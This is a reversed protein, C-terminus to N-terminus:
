VGPRAQGQRLRTWAQSKAAADRRLARFHGECTQTSANRARARAFSESVGDIAPDHGRQFGVEGDVFEVALLGFELFLHPLIEVPADRVPPDDGPLFTRAFIGSKQLADLVVIADAAGDHQAKPAHLRGIAVNNDVRLM